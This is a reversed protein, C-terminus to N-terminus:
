SVKLKKDNFDIIICVVLAVLVPFTLSHWSRFFLSQSLVYIFLPLFTNARGNVLRLVADAIVYLSILFIPMGFYQHISFINHVYDGPTPHCPFAFCYPNSFISNLYSDFLFSRGEKSEDGALDFITKMRFFVDGEFDDAFRYVVFIMSFFIFGFFISKILYKRELAFMYSLLFIVISARSGLLALAIMTIGLYVLSNIFNIKRSGIVTLTLMALLDSTTLYNAGGYESVVYDGLTQSANLIFLVWLAVFGYIVNLIFLNSIKSELSFSSETSNKRYEIVLATLFAFSLINKEYDADVAEVSTYFGLFYFLVIGVYVVASLLLIKNDVRFSAYISILMWGVITADIPVLNSFKVFYVFLLLFLVLGLKTEGYIDISKIKM